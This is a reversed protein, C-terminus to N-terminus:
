FIDWEIKLASDIIICTYFDNQRVSRFYLHAFSYCWVHYFRCCMGVSLLCVCECSAACLLSFSIFVLILAFPFCYLINITPFHFQFKHVRANAKRFYLKQLLEESNTVMSPVVFRFQFSCLSFSFFFLHRVLYNLQRLVNKELPLVIAVKEPMQFSNWGCCLPSFFLLFCFFLVNFIGFCGLIM